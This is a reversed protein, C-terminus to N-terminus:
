VQLAQELRARVDGSFGSLAQAVAGQPDSSRLAERAAEVAETMDPRGALEDLESDVFSWDPTIGPM